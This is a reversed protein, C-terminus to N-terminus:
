MGKKKKSHMHMESVLIELTDTPVQKEIGHEFM